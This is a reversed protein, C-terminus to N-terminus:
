APGALSLRAFEDSALIGIAVDTASAAGADLRDDWTSSPGAERERRLFARYLSAVVRDNAEPAAVFGAAVADRSAGSAIAALWAAVGTDEGRRGLVDDYLSAVFEGDTPRAARYEASGLFARAVAAEGAGATLLAVWSASSPDPARGLFERYYAEVEAQRHEPSNVFGAAVARRDMGARIAALWAAVEADGGRRGLVADYLAAVYARDADAPAPGPGVAVALTAPRLAGGPDTAVITAPGAARFTADFTAVGAVLAVTAPFTAREDSSSLAIPGDRDTAVNGYADRATVTVGFGSGVVADGAAAPAIDLHTADGPTVDVQASAGAIDGLFGAVGFSQPGPRTFLVAITATGHVLPVGGPTVGPDSSGFVIARSRGDAVRGSEDYATVLFTVVVGVRPNTPVGTLALRVAEGAGGDGPPDLEALGRVPAPPGAGATAPLARGELAAVEPRHRHRDHRSPRDAPRRRARPVFM